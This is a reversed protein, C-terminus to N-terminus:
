CAWLGALFISSSNYHQQLWVSFGSEFWFPEAFLQGLQVDSIFAVPIKRLVSRTCGIFNDVTATKKSFHISLCSFFFKLCKANAYHLGGFWEIRGVM